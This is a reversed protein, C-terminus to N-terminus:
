IRLPRVLTKSITITENKNFFLVKLRNLGYDQIVKGKGWSPHHVIEGQKFRPVGLPHKKRSNKFIGM